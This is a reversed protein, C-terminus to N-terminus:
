KTGATLKVPEPIKKIERMLTDVQIHTYVAETVDNSAHGVIKKISYLDLNYKNALTIFTHRCEHATFSYGYYNKCDERLCESFRVYGIRPRNNVLSKVMDRIYPHLPIIRNKGADTKEGAIIYTDHYNKKKLNLLEEIRMGTYILIMVVDHTRADQCESIKKIVSEPIAKKTKKEATAKYSVYQSPSSTIYGAKVAEGFVLTMFVKMLKFVSAPHKEAMYDNMIKQLDIYTIEDIRKNWISKCRDYNREYNRLTVAAWQPSRLTKVEKWMQMFTPVYKSNQPAKSVPASSEAQTPPDSESHSVLAKLAEKRTSYYGIYKKKQKATGKPSGDDNFLQIWGVTVVAAYPNRRHGHMKIVTGSGNPLKM